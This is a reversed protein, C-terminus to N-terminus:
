SSQQQQEEQQRQIMITVMGASVAASADAQTTRPQCVCGVNNAMIAVAGLDMGITNCHTTCTKGADPPVTTLGSTGVVAPCGTLGALLAVAVGLHKTKM